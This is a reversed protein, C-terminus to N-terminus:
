DIEFDTSSYSNGNVFFEVTYDGSPFDRGNSTEFVFNVCTNNYDQNATIAPLDEVIEDDRYLRAFITTTEPFASNPAVVYFSEVDNLSSVEETACGDRDIGESIELSGLDIDDSSASSQADNNTDEVQDNAQETNGDGGGFIRPFLYIAGCIMLIAVAITGCGWKKQPTNLQRM